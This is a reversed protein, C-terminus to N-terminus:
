IVLKGLRVLRYCPEVFLYGINLSEKYLFSEFGVYVVKGAKLFELNDKYTNCTRKVASQLRPASVGSLRRPLQLDSEAAFSEKSELSQSDDDSNVAVTETTRLIPACEDAGCLFFMAVFLLPLLYRLANKM